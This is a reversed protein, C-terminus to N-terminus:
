FCWQASIFLVDFFRQRKDGKPNSGDYQIVQHSLGARILTKDFKYGAWFESNLSGVDNDGGRFNNFKSPGVKNVSGEVKSDNGFTTGIFDINFGLFYKLYNYETYLAINAATLSVDEIAEVSRYIPLDNSSVHTVRVGSGVKFDGYASKHINTLLHYDLAFTKVTESKVRGLGLSTGLRHELAIANSVSFIILFIFYKM